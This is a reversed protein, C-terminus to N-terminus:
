GASRRSTSPPPRRAARTSRRSRPTSATTSTSRPRRCRRPPDVGRHVREAAGLDHHRRRRGQARRLEQPRRGEDAHLRRRGPLLSDHVRGAARPGAHDDHVPLDRRGQRDRPEPHARRGRRARVRGERSGRVAGQRAPARPRHGHRDARRRRGRFALAPQHQRHRRDCPRSRARDAAPQRRQGACAGRAGAALGARGGRDGRRHRRGGLPRLGRPAQRRGQGRARASRPQRTRSLRRHCRQGGPQM